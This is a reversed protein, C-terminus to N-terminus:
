RDRPCRPRARAARPRRRRQDGPAAQGGRCARDPARRAPRRAALREDVPGGGAGRRGPGLGGGRTGAIEEFPLAAAAAAELDGAALQALARAQRRHRGFSTGARGGDAADAADLRELAEDARGLAILSDAAGALLESVSWPAGADLTARRQQEEFALAEDHRDLDRLADSYEGSICAFCQWSPDIRRLTEGSVELRQTAYGRPDAGAYAIALDQVVCVSQPCDVNADRHALEFLEVADPLEGRGGRRMQRYWHRIFIEVWPDDLARTLALAEPVMAEVNANDDAIVADPLEDLLDALRDNGTERLEERKASLWRWIDM